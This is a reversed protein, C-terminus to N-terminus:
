GVGFTTEYIRGGRFIFHEPLLFCVCWWFAICLLNETIIRILGRNKEDGFYVLSRLPNIQNSLTKKALQYNQSQM